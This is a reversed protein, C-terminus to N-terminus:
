AAWAADFTSLVALTVLTPKRLAILATRRLAVEFGGEATDPYFRLVAQMLPGTALGHALAVVGRALVVNGYVALGEGEIILRV